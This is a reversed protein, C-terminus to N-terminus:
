VYLNKELAEYNIGNIGCLQKLYFVQAESLTVKPIEPPHKELVPGRAEHEIEEMSRSETEESVNEDIWNGMVTQRFRAETSVRSPVVNFMLLLELDQETFLIGDVMIGEPVSTFQEQVIAGHIRDRLIDRIVGVPMEFREIEANIYGDENTWERVPPLIPWVRTANIDDTYSQRFMQNLLSTSVDTWPFWTGVPHASHWQRARHLEEITQIM